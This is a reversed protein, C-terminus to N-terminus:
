NVTIRCLWDAHGSVKLFYTGRPLDLKVRWRLRHADFRAQPERDGNERELWLILDEKAGTQNNVGLLFPGQSRTVLSPEFGTSRLTVVEATLHRSADQLSVASAPNIAATKASVTGSPRLYIIGFGLLAALAVLWACVVLGRGSKISSRFILFM